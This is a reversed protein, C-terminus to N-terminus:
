NLQKLVIQAIKKAKDEDREGRVLIKGSAFLSITVADMKAM